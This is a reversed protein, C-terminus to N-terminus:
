ALLRMIRKPYRRSKALCIRKQMEQMESVRKALAADFEANRVQDILAAYMTEDIQIPKGCNPCILEKM